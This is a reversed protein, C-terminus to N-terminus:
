SNTTENKKRKKALEYVETTTTIVQIEKNSNVDTIIRIGNRIDQKQIEVKGTESIIEITHKEVVNFKNIVRQCTFSSHPCERKQWAKDAEEHTKFGTQSANCSGEYDKHWCGHSSDSAVCEWGYDQKKAM